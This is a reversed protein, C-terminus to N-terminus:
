TQFHGLIHTYRKFPELLMNRMQHLLANRHHEVPISVIDAIQLSDHLHWKTNNLDTLM